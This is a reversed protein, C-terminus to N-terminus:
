PRQPENKCKKVYLPWIRIYEKVSDEPTLGNDALIKKVDQVFQQPTILKNPM